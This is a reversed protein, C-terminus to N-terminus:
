DLCPEDLEHSLSLDLAVGGVKIEDVKIEDQIEHVTHEHHEHVFFEKEQHQEQWWAEQRRVVTQYTQRLNELQKFFSHAEIPHLYRSLFAGKAEHEDIPHDMHLAQHIWDEFEYSHESISHWSLQWHKAISHTSVWNRVEQLIHSSRIGPYSEFRHNDDHFPAIM